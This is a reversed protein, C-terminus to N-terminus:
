CSDLFSSPGSAKVGISSRARARARPVPVTRAFPRVFSPVRETRSYRQMSIFCIDLLITPVKCHVGRFIAITAFSAWGPPSYVMVLPPRPSSPSCKRWRKLRRKAPFKQYKHCIRAYDKSYRGRQSTVWCHFFIHWPKPHARREEDQHLQRCLDQFVAVPTGTARKPARRVYKTSMSISPSRQPARDIQLLTPAM